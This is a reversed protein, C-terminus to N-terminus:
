LSRPSWDAAQRSMSRCCTNPLLLNMKLTGTGGSATLATSYGTGVVGSPPVGNIVPDPNVTISVTKGSNTGAVLAQLTLKM